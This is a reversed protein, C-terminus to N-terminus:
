RACQARWIGVPLTTSGAPSLAGCAAVLMAALLLGAAAFLSRVRRM